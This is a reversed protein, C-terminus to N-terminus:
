WWINVWFSFFLRLPRKTRIMVIHDDTQLAHLLLGSVPASRHGLLLLLYKVVCSRADRKWMLSWRSLCFSSSECSGPLKSKRNSPVRFRLMRVTHSYYHDLTKILKTPGGTDEKINMFSSCLGCSSVLEAPKQEWSPAFCDALPARLPHM